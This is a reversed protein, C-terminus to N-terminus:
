PRRKGLKPRPPPPPRRPPPSGSLAAELSPLARSLAAIEPPRLGSLLTGLSTSLQAEASKFVRRGSVSLELAQRRRDSAEPRREILEQDALGGLLQSVAPGSVGSLRALGSSSIGDNAIARMALYQAVTMPPDHAALVREIWRTVLPAVVALAGAADGSSAKPPPM